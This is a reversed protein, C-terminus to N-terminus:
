LKMKRVEHTRDMCAMVFPLDLKVPVSIHGAYMGTIRTTDKGDGDFANVM